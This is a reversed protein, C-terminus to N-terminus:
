LTRQINVSKGLVNYFTRAKLNVDPGTLGSLKSYNASTTGPCSQWLLSSSSFNVHPQSSCSSGFILSPIQNLDNLIVWGKPNEKLSTQKFIVVFDFPVVNHPLSVQCKQRRWLVSTQLCRVPQVNAISSPQRIASQLLCIIRRNALLFNRVWM